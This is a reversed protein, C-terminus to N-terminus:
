GGYLSIFDSGYKDKVYSFVDHLDKEKLLVIPHIFDKLKARSQDTEYGKIEVYSGDALIFDPIWHCTKGEFEYPFKKTNRTFSVGHDLQYIVWALEYSSDCWYGKYRGKKGRGSGEQYGGLKRNLASQRIKERRIAEREPSITRPTRPKGALAARIKEKTEESQIRRPKCVGDAWRKQSIESLKQKTEPTHTKGTWHNAM